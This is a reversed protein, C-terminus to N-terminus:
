HMVKVVKGNEKVVINLGRQLANQKRGDLSYITQISGAAQLDTISSEGTSPFSVCEANDITNSSKTSSNNHVFAVVSLNDKVWGDEVDFTYNMEYLNGNWVIDDGYFSNYCRIVHQHTFGKPASTQRVHPVNDELLYVTLAPNSYALEQRSGSVTVNLKKSEEDYSANINVSVHADEELCTEAASVIDAQEPCIYTSGDFMPRRDFMMAPNYGVAFYAALKEDCPQTLWDTKYGSHHCVAVIRGAFKEMEMVNHLYGVVRPCNGCPESTYEEILVKKVLAFRAKISNNVEAQDEGDDIGAITVVVDGNSVTSMSPITYKFTAKEGWALQTDFHNTYIDANNEYKTSLTLGSVPKQGNNVVTVSLETLEADGTHRAIASSLGLDYDPVNDGSAVAEVSLIGASSMDQWLADDGLKVFCANPLPSGVVSLVNSEDKQRYSMGIYLGEEGTIAYPTEIDIENWGKALKPTTKTTIVGEAINEGRLDTRIWIRLSDVNIKTALAARLTTINCGAYSKLMDEPLYIAASVWQKGEVSISGQETFEGACYGIHVENQAQSMITGLLCSLILLFRKM